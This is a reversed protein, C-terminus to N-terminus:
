LHNEEESECMEEEEGSTKEGTTCMGTNQSLTHRLIQLYNLTHRDTNSIHTVHKLTASMTSKTKCLVLSWACSTYQIPACVFVHACVREKAEKRHGEQVKLYCPYKVCVCVCM